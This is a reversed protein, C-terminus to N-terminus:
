AESVAQKDGEAMASKAVMQAYAGGRAMLEAHSGREIIVGADVVAIM